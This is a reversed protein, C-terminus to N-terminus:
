ERRSRDRLYAVTSLLLVFPVAFPLGLGLPLAGAALVFLSIAFLGLLPAFNRRTFRLVNLLAETPSAVRDVLVLLAPVWIMLGIVPWVLLIAGGVFEPPLGALGALGAALLPPVFCVIWVSVASGALPMGSFLVALGPRHGRATKITFTMAGLMLWILVIQPLFFRVIGPAMRFLFGIAVSTAAVILPTVIGALALSKFNTKYIGWARRVIDQIEIPQPRRCAVTRKEDPSPPLVIPRSAVPRAAGDRPVTGGSAAPAAVPSSINGVPSGGRGRPGNGIRAADGGPPAKPIVVTELLNEVKTDRLSEPTAPTIPKAQSVAAIPRTQPAATPRSAVSSTSKALSSVAAQQSGPPWYHATPSPITLVEGCKVCQVRLGAMDDPLRLAAKCGSCDFEITM